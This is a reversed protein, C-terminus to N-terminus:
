KVVIKNTVLTNGIVVKILYLGSPFSKPLIHTINQEVGLESSYITAGAATIISYIVNSQSPNEIMLEIDSNEKYLIKVNQQGYFITEGNYYTTSQCLTHESNKLILWYNYRDTDITHPILVYRRNSEPIFTIEGTSIDTFGWQYLLDTRDEECLLINSTSKRYINTEAPTAEVETKITYPIERVCGTTKDTLVFVVDTEQNTYHWKIGIDTVETANTEITGSNNSLYWNIICNTTDGNISYVELQNICPTKNGIVEVKKPLPHVIVTVIDNSYDTKCRTATKLRYYTTQYMTGAFFHDTINAVDQWSTQDKSSQLTYTYNDDVGKAYDSITIPLAEEGFCVEQNGSINAAMLDEYVVVAIEESYKAECGKTPTVQCRYRYTGETKPETTLTPTTSTTTNLDTWETIETNYEQWQYTYDNGQGIASVAITGSTMYCFPATPTPTIVLDPYVSITVVNSLRVGCGKQSTSQIRYYTTATLASPQYTLATAATIDTFTNGDPSQQWQYDFADDEGGTSETSCTILAPVTNYCITETQETTIVAATIDPRVTITVAETCKTTCKNTVKVRYYTTATLPQPQYKTTTASTIDTFENNNTSQQWQYIYSGDGGTPMTTFSLEDPITNYCITQESAITGAKLDEYVSVFVTDSYYTVSETSDTADATLSCYFYQSYSVSVLTLSSSTASSIENFSVGNDSNFWHYLFHEDPFSVNASFSIQSSPCVNSSPSVSVTIGQACVVNSIVCFLFVAFLRDALTNFYLSKGGGLLNNKFVYIIVFFLWYNM